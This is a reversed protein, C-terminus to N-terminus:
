DQQPLPELEQNGNSNLNSTPHHHPHSVTDIILSTITGVLTTLQAKVGESIEKIEM